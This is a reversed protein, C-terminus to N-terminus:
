CVFKIQNIRAMITACLGGATAFNKCLKNDAFYVAPPPNNNIDLLKFLQNDRPSTLLFGCLITTRNGPIERREQNPRGPLVQIACVGTIANCCHRSAQNHVAALRGRWIFVVADYQHVADRWCPCVLCNVALLFISCMVHASYQRYSIRVTIHLMADSIVPPSIM